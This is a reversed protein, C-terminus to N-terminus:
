IINMIGRAGGEPNHIDNEHVDVGEPSHIDNETYVQYDGPLWAIFIM